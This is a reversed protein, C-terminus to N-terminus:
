VKGQYTQAMNGAWGKVWLLNQQQLFQKTPDLNPLMTGTPLKMFIDIKVKAQTYAMIFDNSCM